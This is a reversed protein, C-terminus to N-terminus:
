SWMGGRVLKMNRAFIWAAWAGDSVGFPCNQREITLLEPTSRDRKWLRQTVGCGCPEEPMLSHALRIIAEKAQISLGQEGARYNLEMWQYCCCGAPSVGISIYGTRPHLVSMCAAGETVTCDCPNYAFLKVQTSADNSICRVDVKDLGWVLVDAYNVPSAYYAPAKLRVWPVSVTLVGATLDVSSPIIETDTGPVFLHIDEVACTVGPITIVAPDATYDPAAGAQIMSDAMVGAEIVKGWRTHGRRAYPHREQTVWRACLPYGIVEEIMQQAHQLARYVAQRQYEEWLERCAYNVNDPHNVGAFAPEHYGIFEAYVPLTVANFDITMTM